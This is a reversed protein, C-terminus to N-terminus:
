HKKIAQATTTYESLMWLCDMGDKSLKPPQVPIQTGTMRRLATWTSSMLALYLDLWGEVYYNYM